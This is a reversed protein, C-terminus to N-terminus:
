EGESPLILMRLEKNTADDSSIRWYDRRECLAGMFPNRPVVIRTPMKKIRIAPRTVRVTLGDKIDNNSCGRTHPFRVLREPTDSGPSEILAYFPVALKRTM